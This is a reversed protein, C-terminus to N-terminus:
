DYWASETGGDLLGQELSAWDMAASGSEAGSTLGIGIGLALPLAAALAPRWWLTHESPLIWALCRELPSRPVSEVVREVLDLSGVPYAALVLDLRQADRCWVEAQPNAARFAEMAAREEAPWRLPDAGYADVLDRFREPQM